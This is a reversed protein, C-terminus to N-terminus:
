KISTTSIIAWVYVTKTSQLPRHLQECMCQCNKKISTTSTLVGVYVTKRSQLPQYLSDHLSLREQNFHNISHKMHLCDEKISTTSTIAWIYMSESVTKRSQLLQHLPEYIPTKSFIYFLPALSRNGSITPKRSWSSACQHIRRRQRDQM